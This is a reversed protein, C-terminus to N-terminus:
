ETYTLNTNNVPIEEPSDYDTSTPITISDNEINDCLEKYNEETFKTFASDKMVLSVGEDKVAMTWTQGGKFKGSEYTKLSKIVAAKYNKVASAIVTDSESNKDTVDGVVKGYHGDASNIVSTIMSDGCSFIVDTGLAYWSSAKSETDISAASIGTYTYRINVTSGAAKAADNAGQIFGYGYNRVADTEKGGMFGIDYYGEKVLAYGAMYGAQEDAFSVNLTNESIVYKSNDAILSPEIIIFDIDPYKEQADYLVSDITSGPIVFVEAGNDAAKALLKMKSDDSDNEPQYKKYTIDEEGAYEKVGSWIEQCMTSGEIGNSDTIVAIKYSPSSDTGISCSYLTIIMLAIVAVALRKKM